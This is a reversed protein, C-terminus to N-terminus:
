LTKWTSKKGYGNETDKPKMSISGEMKSTRAKVLIMYSVGKEDNEVEQLHRSRQEKVELEKETEEKMDKVIM